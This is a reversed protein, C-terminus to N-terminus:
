QRPKGPVAEAYRKKRNVEQGRNRASRQDAQGAEDCTLQTAPAEGLCESPQANCACTNKENHAMKESHICELREEPHAGGLQDDADDFCFSAFMQGMVLFQSQHGTGRHSLSPVNGCDRLAGRHLFAISHM